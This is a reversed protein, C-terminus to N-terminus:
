HDEGYAEPSADSGSFGEPTPSTPPTYSAGDEIASQVDSTGYLREDLNETLHEAERVIPRERDGLLLGDRAEDDAISEDAAMPSEARRISDVVLENDFDEVGIVDTLVHAAIRLEAETGVRGALGIRGDKVSVTLDDLDLGGHEGLRDRVLERIEDDDLDEISSFDEYDHAM